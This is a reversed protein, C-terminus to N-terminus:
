KKLKAKEDKAWNLNGIALKNEPNFKLANNCAEIGKDWQKLKNYAAAMNSYAESYDPKLKLVKNCAEISKEFDGQQYYTLSLDLFSAATPVSNATTEAKTIKDRQNIADALNNKALQFDPKIDVAKQCAAIGKDYQKLLTYASGINNFADAYDPKLKIAELGADICQQYKGAQYYL